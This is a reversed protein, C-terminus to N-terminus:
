KPRFSSPSLDGHSLCGAPGAPPDCPQVSAPLVRNTKRHYRRVDPSHSQGAWTHWRPLTEVLASRLRAAPPALVSTCEAHAGANWLGDLWRMVRSSGFEAKSSALDLSPGQIEGVPAAGSLFTVDVTAVRGDGFKSIASGAATM